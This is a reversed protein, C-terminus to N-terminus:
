EPREPKPFQPTGFADGTFHYRQFAELIDQYGYDQAARKLQSWSDEGRVWVRHDDSMAHYWDHHLCKDYFEQKTMATGQTTDM